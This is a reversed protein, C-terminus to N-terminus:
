LITLAIVISIIILLIKNIKLKSILYINLITLIILFLNSKLSLSLDIVVKLMIALSGLSIGSIFTNFTKNAKIKEFLPYLILIMTFSPIFIAITALLAGEFSHLYFGIATATTFVPGPTIEGIMTLNVLQENSLYSLKDVFESKLFGILVYGSGYLISGIKLFTLFILSLSIPELSLLKNKIKDVFMLSGSILLVLLENIGLFLMITSVMIIASNKKGKKSKSMKLFASFIIAIMVPTLASFAKSIEPIHNYNMYFMTFLIVIVVAPIIFSLGAILLGIVGGMKYGVLIAVETSNPGPILNTFSILDLFEEENLWKRKSVVEDSMMAIHAAPGGYAFFGLYSFLKFLEFHIKKM